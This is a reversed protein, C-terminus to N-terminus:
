HCATLLTTHCVTSSAAGFARDGVTRHHTHPMDLQQLSASRLRRRSPIDVLRHLDDSLYPTALGRLSWFVTTVLKYQIHESSHLWLFSALMDTIHDSCSWNSITFHLCLLILGLCYPGDKRCSGSGVDTM